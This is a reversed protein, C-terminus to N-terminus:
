RKVVKGERIQVGKDTFHWLYIGSPLSQMDISNQGYYLRQTLAAHGSIDFFSIEGHAPVYEGLTVLLYDEVPNPFTSVVATNLTTVSSGFPGITIDRCATNSSNENSVTLCVHYVGDLSFNHYPNRAHEQPSGDGFNWTWSEPRFYSLDTFRLRMNDFSDPEYRFKALPYNDLGLTDCPSGDLPGLRYNPFNPITWANNSIKLAHQQFHSAIGGEDPFNM